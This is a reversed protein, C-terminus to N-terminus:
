RFQSKLVNSLPNGLRDILGEHDKGAERAQRYKWGLKNAGPEYDM